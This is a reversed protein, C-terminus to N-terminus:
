RARRWNILSAKGRRFFVLSNFDEPGYLRIGSIKELETRLTNAVKLNM